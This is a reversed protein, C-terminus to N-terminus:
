HVFRWTEAKNSVSNTNIGKIIYKLKYPEKIKRSTLVNKLFYKENIYKYSYVKDSSGNALEYTVRYKYDLINTEKNLENFVPSTKSIDFFDPVSYSIESYITPFDNSFSWLPLETFTNSGLIYNIDIVSGEKEGSLDLVMTYSNMEDTIKELTKQSYKTKIIDGNEQRQSLAKFSKLFDKEGENSRLPFSFKLSDIKCLIKIRLNRTYVISYYDVRLPCEPDINKPNEKGEITIDGVDFLIIAKATSDFDCKNLMWQDDTIKGFRNSQSFANFIVLSFLVFLYIRKM